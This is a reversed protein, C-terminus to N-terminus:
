AAAKEGARRIEEPAPQAYRNLLVLSTATRLAFGAAGGAAALYITPLAGWGARAGYLLPGFVLLMRAADVAFRVEQRRAMTSIEQLPTSVAQFAAMIALARMIEGAIKWPAGLVLGVVFPSVTGILLTPAGILLAAVGVLGYGARMLHEGRPNRSAESLFVNSLPMAVLTTPGTVLRAGVGYYGAM